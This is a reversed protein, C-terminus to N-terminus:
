AASTWATSSSAGRRPSTSDRSCTSWRARERAPGGLIAVTQGPRVEFDVDGLAETWTNYSYFVHELRVRGETVKLRSASPSDKVPSEADIVEFIRRGAAIARAFMQVRWGLLHVPRTLVGMYLIFSALEGATMRGAFVEQGGILLIAGTVGAFALAITAQGSVFVKGAAVFHSAVGFARRDFKASEYERAGFAKVVRMGALNEQVLANMNGTEAHATEFLPTMRYSMSAAPWIIVPLFALAVLGLRWDILMMITVATTFVAVSGFGALIGFATYMRIADVDVTARSMLNGTKQKDHYGLSLGQLKNFLDRRLDYGTRQAVSEGLYISAFGLVGRLLAAILILGAIFMLRSQVCSALAEDIAAGVLRPILLPPLSGIAFAAAAAAALRKRRLGYATLRLLTRM